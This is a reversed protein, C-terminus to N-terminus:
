LNSQNIQNIFKKLYVSNIKKWYFNTHKLVFNTFDNFKFSSQSFYYEFFVSLDVNESKKDEKLEVKNLIETIKDIKIKNQNFIHYVKNFSLQLNILNYIAKATEDVPTFEIESKYFQKKLSRNKLYLLLKYTLNDAFNYQFRGDNLRGTLNGIRLIVAKLGKKIAKRVNKEAIFKSKLYASQELNQGIFFDNETFSKKVNAAIAMTSIYALKINKDNCFDIVKNTFSINDKEFDSYNGFQKVNAACHVFISNKYNKIDISDYINDSNSKIVEIKEPLDSNFYFNYIKKLRNKVSINNKRRILCYVKINKETFLKLLHIGLFGTAGTLIVNDFFITKNCFYFGKWKELSVNKYIDYKSSKLLIKESLKEITPYNYFDQPTINLGAKEASVFAEVIMLSNIGIDFFNDKISIQDIELLKCLIDSIKKQVSNRPKKIDIKKTKNKHIEILKRTDIKGNKNLPFKDIKHIASPFMYYPLNNKIINKAEFVNFNIDDSLIFVVIKNTKNETLTVAVAKKIKKNRSLLIEIEALEVRYGRIKIQNDNRGLFEINGDKLWRGLDGTKYLIKNKIFSSKIFKEQTLKKNKFYKEAIGIGSIYIQGTKNVPLIQLDKNLIFIKVNHLPFGIPSYYSNYNEGPKAQYATSEIAAETVGYSNFFKISNRFNNVIKIFDNYICAEGGLVVTKLSSFSLDNNKVYNLFPFIIGPTAEIFNIKDSQAIKFLKKPSIREEETAIKLCGANIISKILDGIFVDFSFDSVQLIILSKKQLNHIKQWSYYLNIYALHKTLIAKPEGTTGSTFHLAAFYNPKSLNINSFKENTDISDINIITFNDFNIKQLVYNDTIIFNCEAKKLINFIRKPPSNLDIPLLINGTKWIAILSVILNKNRKLLVAITNQPKINKKIIKDAIINSFINVQKYTLTKNKYHVFNKDASKQVSFLFFDIITKNQPIKLTNKNFNKIKNIQKENLVSYDKILTNSNKLFEKIIKLLVDFMQHIEKKTFFDLRYDIEMLFKNENYRNSLHISLPTIESDGFFLKPTVKQSSKINEYSLFIQINNIKHKFNKFIYYNPMRSHRLLTNFNKKTASLFNNFSLNKNIKSLFPLTNVFLGITKKEEENIRNYIPTHIFFINKSYIKYLYISLSASLIIFPSTKKNQSFNKLHNSIKKPINLSIRKATKSAFYFNKIPFIKQTNIKLQQKFFKYDCIFKESSFYKKEQNAYNLYSFNKLIKKSTKKIFNNYYDFLNKEFLFVSWSDSIIHHFKVFIATKYNSISFIQFDYLKNDFVNIKKNGFKKFKKELLIENKCNESYIQEINYDKFFFKKSKQEIKLRLIDNNKLVFNIAQKLIEVNYNKDYQLLVCINNTLFDPYLLESNLIGKQLYTLEYYM